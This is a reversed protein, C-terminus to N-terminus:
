DAYIASDQETRRPPGHRKQAINKVQSTVNSKHELEQRIRRSRETGIRCILDDAVERDIWRFIEIKEVRNLKRIEDKIQTANMRKEGRLDLNVGPQCDSPAIAPVCIRRSPKRNSKSISMPRYEPKLDTPYRASDPAQAARFFYVLIWGASGYLHLISSRMGGCWRATGSESASPTACSVGFVWNLSSMSNAHRQFLDKPISRPLTSIRTSIWSGVFFEHPRCGPWGIVFPIRDFNVRQVRGTM